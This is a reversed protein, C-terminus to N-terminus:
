HNPSITETKYNCSKCKVNVPAMFVSADGPIEEWEELGIQMKIEAQIDEPIMQGEMNLSREYNDLGCEPCIWFFAPHLEVKEQERDTRM